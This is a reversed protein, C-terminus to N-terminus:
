RYAEADVYDAIREFQGLYNQWIGGYASVDGPINIKCRDEVHNAPIVFAHIERPGHVCLLILIPAKLETHGERQICFQFGPAKGNYKSIRATKVELDVNLFRLDAVPSEQVLIGTMEYLARAVWQEGWTGLDNHAAMM